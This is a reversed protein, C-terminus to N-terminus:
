WAFNIRMFISPYAVLDSLSFLHASSSCFSVLNTQKTFFVLNTDMPWRTQGQEVGCSPIDEFVLNTQRAQKAATGPHVRRRQV